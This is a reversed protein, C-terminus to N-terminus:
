SRLCTKLFGLIEFRRHYCFMPSLSLMRVKPRVLGLTPAERTAQCHLMQRCHLLRPKSGQTPFIGRSSPMAIWELIRAQLIRHICSGPSSCDMPDCLTLCSKLAKAPLCALLSLPPWLSSDAPLFPLSVGWGLM